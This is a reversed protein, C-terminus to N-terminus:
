GGLGKLWAVGGFAQFMSWVFAIGALAGFFWLWRGALAELRKNIADLDTKLQARLEKAEARLLERDRAAEEQEKQIALIERSHQNFQNNRVDDVKRENDHHRTVRRELEEHRSEFRAMSTKIDGVDSKVTDLKDAIARISSNFDPQKCPCAKMQGEVDAMREALDRAAM